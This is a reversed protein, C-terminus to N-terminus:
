APSEQSTVLRPMAPVVARCHAASSFQAVELEESQQRETQNIPLPKTCSPSWIFIIFSKFSNAAQVFGVFTWTDCVHLVFKHDVLPRVKKPARSMNSWSSTRGTLYSRQVINEPLSSYEQCTEEWLTQAVAGHRVRCIQTRFFSVMFSPIRPLDRWRCLNNQLSVRSSVSIGDM